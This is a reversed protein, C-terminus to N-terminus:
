NILRYELENKFLQLIHDPLHKQTRLIANIHDVTLEKLLQRKAPEDGNIGYSAWEFNERIVEHLDNTYVLLPEMNGSHRIYDTGGDVFSYTGDVSTYSVYDHRHKSHLITGDKCRWKNCLLHVQTSMKSFGFLVVFLLLSSFCLAYWQSGASTSQM